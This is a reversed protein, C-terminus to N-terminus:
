IVVKIVAILRRRVLGCHPASHQTVNMVCIIPAPSSTVSTFVPCIGDESTNCGVDRVHLLRHDQSVNAFTESSHLTRKVVSLCGGCDIYRTTYTSIILVFVLLDPPCNNFDYVNVKYMTCTRHWLANTMKM